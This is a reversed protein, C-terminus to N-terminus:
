MYSIAICGMTKFIQHNHTLRVCQCRRVHGTECVNLRAIVHVGGSIAAGLNDCDCAVDRDCTASRIAMDEVAVEQEMREVRQFAITTLQM